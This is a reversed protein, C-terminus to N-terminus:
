RWARAGPIAPAPLIGIAQDLMRVAEDLQQRAFALCGLHIQSAAVWLENGDAQYITIASSFCRVAGVFDGRNKAIMGRAFAGFAHTTPDLDLRQAEELLTVAADDRGQWHLMFGLGMMARARVVPPVCDVGPMALARQSWDTGERIHDHLYWFRALSAVLRVMAATDGSREFWALAARLNDHEAAIRGIWVPDAIVLHESPGSTALTLCWEAHLRRSDREEGSEALRELGFERITELM